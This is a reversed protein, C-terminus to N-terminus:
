AIPGKREYLPVLFHKHMVVNSRLLAIPQAKLTASETSGSRAIAAAVSHSCLSIEGIGGRSAMGIFDASAPKLDALKPNWNGLRDSDSPQGIRDLYPLLRSKNDELTQPQFVCSFQDAVEGSEVVFGFHVLCYEDDFYFKLRNFFSVRPFRDEPIELRVDIHKAVPETM